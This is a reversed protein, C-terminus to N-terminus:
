LHRLHKEPTASAILDDSYAFCFSTGLLVQHVFCQFMHATNILGFLMQVLEFLGFPNTVATKHVDPPTVPIQQYAHMLDLNSFIAAGQLSSSCNHIHAALM